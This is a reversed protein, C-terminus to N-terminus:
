EPCPDWDYYYDGNENEKWEGPCDINECPVVVRKQVWKESWVPLLGYVYVWGWEKVYVTKYCTTETGGGGDDPPAHDFDTQSFLVTSCILMLTLLVKKM